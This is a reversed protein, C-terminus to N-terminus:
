GRGPADEVFAIPEVIRGFARHTVMLAVSFGGDREERRREEITGAHAV